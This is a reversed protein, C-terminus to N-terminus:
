RVSEQHAVVEPDQYVADRATWRSSGWITKMCHISCKRACERYRALGKVKNNTNLLCSSVFIVKKSRNDDRRDM